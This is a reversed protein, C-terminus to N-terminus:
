ADSCIQYRLNGQKAIGLGWKTGSVLWTGYRSADRQMEYSLREYRVRVIGANEQMGPGGVGFCGTRGTTDGVTVNASEYLTFGAFSIGMGPNTNHLAQAAKDGFNTSYIGAANTRLNATLQRVQAGGFVAWLPGPDHNQSRFLGTATDWTALTLLTANTGTGATVSTFLGLATTHVLDMHAHRLGDIVRNGVNFVSRQNPGDLVFSRLGYKAVTIGVSTPVFSEEPAADNDAVTAAGTFENGQKLEYNLSNAAGESSNILGAIMLGPMPDVLVTQLRRHIYETNIAEALQTSGTPETAANLSM